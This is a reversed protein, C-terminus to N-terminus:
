DAWLKRSDPVAGGNPTRGRASAEPEPVAAAMLEHRHRWAQDCVREDVLEDDVAPEGITLHDQTGTGAGPLPQGDDRAVVAQRQGLTDPGDAGSLQSCPPPSPVVLVEGTPPPADRSSREELSSGITRLCQDISHLRRELSREVRIRVEDIEVAAHAQERTGYSWDPLHRQHLGARRRHGIGPHVQSIEVNADELGIDGAPPRSSSIDNDRVRWTHAEARSPHSSDDRGVCWAHRQHAAVRRRQPTIRLEQDRGAELQAAGREHIEERVRGVDLNHRPEVPGSGPRVCIM